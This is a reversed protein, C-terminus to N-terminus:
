SFLDELEEIVEDKIKDKVQDLIIDTWSNNNEETSCKNKEVFHSYGHYSQFYPRYPVSRTSYFIEQEKKKDAMLGVLVTAQRGAGAERIVAVMERCNSLSCHVRLNYSNKVGIDLASHSRLDSARLSKKFDLFNNCNFTIRAKIEFEDDSEKSLSLDFAKIKRGLLTTENEKEELESQYKFLIKKDPEMEGDISPDHTWFSDRQQNNFDSVFQNYDSNMRFAEGCGNFIFFVTPFFLFYFLTAKTKFM